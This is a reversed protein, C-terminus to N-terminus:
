KEVITLQGFVVNAEIEVYDKNKDLDKSSYEKDGFNVLTNDPFNLAGFVSSGKILVPRKADITIRGEAFITNVEVKSGNEVNSLDIKGNSFIINYEGSKDPSITKEGFVINEEQKKITPGIILNVGWFILVLAIIVKFVSIDWGFIPRLILILGAIVLILGWYFLSFLFNM